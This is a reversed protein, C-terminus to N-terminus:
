VGEDRALWSEFREAIVLVEGPVDPDETGNYNVFTIAESLACARVPDLFRGLTGTYTANLDGRIPDSLAVRNGRYEGDPNGPIPFWPAEGELARRFGERQGVDYATLKGAEFAAAPPSGSPAPPPPPMTSGDGSGPYGPERPM